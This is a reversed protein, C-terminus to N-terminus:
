QVPTMMFYVMLALGSFALTVVAVIVGWFITRWKIQRQAEQYAEMQDEKQIPIPIDEPKVRVMGNLRSAIEALEPDTELYEEVLAQTEPSAEGSLYLPLLDLITNRAIEM